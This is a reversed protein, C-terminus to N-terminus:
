QTLVLEILVVLEPVIEFVFIPVILTFFKDKSEEAFV